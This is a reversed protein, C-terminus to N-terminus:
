DNQLDLIRIGDEPNLLYNNSTLLKMWAAKAKPDGKEALNGFITYFNEDRKYFAKDVGLAYGATHKIVAFTRDITSYMATPTRFSRLTGKINLPLFGNEYSGLGLNYFALENQARMILYLSQRLGWNSVSFGEEEDDDDGGELLASAISIFLSFLLMMAIEALTRKINAVELKTLNHSQGLLLAKLEDKEQFLKTFFTIYYGEYEDGLEYDVGWSKFRRRVNPAIYKRYMLGLVGANYREAQVQDFKNYVGNFRKNLAHMKRMVETDLLNINVDERVALNGFKDIVYADYLSITEGSQTKVKTDHLLSLMVKVQAMHEGKHMMGFYMKDSWLKKGASQSIKRGYENFYEGQLADYLQALQGIKSKRVPSLMDKFFEGEHTHYEKNAWTWTKINFYQGAWADIQSSIEAALANSAALVPKGGIQTFSAFAMMGDVLKNVNINGAKQKVRYKGYIHTDVLSEILAATNNSKHKRFYEALPTDNVQIKELSGDSDHLPGKESVQQLFSESFVKLNSQAQYREAAGSYILVSSILDLSTNELGINTSYYHPIVKKLGEGYEEEENPLFSTLGEWYRQGWKTIGQEKLRDRSVKEVGPIRLFMPTDQIKRQSALYTSVLFKYYKFAAANKPSQLALYKKNIFKSSNPVTVDRGIPILGGLPDKNFNKKVWSSFQADTDKEKHREFITRWGERLLVKEGTYPNEMYEDYENRGVRYGKSIALKNLYYYTLAKQSTNPYKVKNKAALAEAEKTLEKMSKSYSNYDLEQVFSYYPKQGEVEIVEYFPENFQQVNDKSVNTHKEYDELARAAARELKMLTPRVKEFEEKLSLAFTAILSNNVSVAPNLWASTVSIDKYNGTELAKLLTEESENLKEITEQIQIEYKKARAPTLNRKQLKKKLVSLREKLGAKQEDTPLYQALKHAIIPNIKSSTIRKVKQFETVVEALKYALSNITSNEPTLDLIKQLEKVIGEFLLVESRFNDLTQLLTLVDLDPNEYVNDLFEQLQNTLTNEQTVYTSYVYEIFGSLRSFETGVEIKELLEQIKKIDRYREQKSLRKIEEELVVVVDEMFETNGLEELTDIITEKKSVKKLSKELPIDTEHIYIPEFELDFIEDQIGVHTLHAPIIAIQKVSRGLLEEVFAKYITLQTAHRQKKSARKVVKGTEDKITYVKSYTRVKQNGLEDEIINPKTISNESTKLDYIYIEGNPEVVLLDLTGAVKLSSFLTLQPLFIADPHLEKLKQIYDVTKIVVKEDVAIKNNLGGLGKMIELSSEGLIAREFIFDVTNGWEMKNKYPDESQEAFSFYGKRLRNIFRTTREYPIGEKNIYDRENVGRMTSHARLLEDAIEKQVKTSNTTIQKDVLDQKLEDIQYYIEEKGLAENFVSFEVSCSSM